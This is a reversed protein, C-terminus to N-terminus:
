IVILLAVILMLLLLDGWMDVMMWQSVRLVRHMNNRRVNMVMWTLNVIIWDISVVISCRRMNMMSGLHLTSSSAAELVM